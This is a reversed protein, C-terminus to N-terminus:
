IVITHLTLFIKASDSNLFPHITSTYVTACQFPPAFNFSYFALYFQILKSGKKLVLNHFYDESVESENIIFDTNKKKTTKKASYHEITKGKINVVHIDLKNQNFTVQPSSTHCMAGAFNQVLTESHGLM